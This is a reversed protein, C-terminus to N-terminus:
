IPAPQDGQAGLHPPLACLGWHAGAVLTLLLGHNNEAGSIRPHSTVADGPGDQSIYDQGGEVVLGMM